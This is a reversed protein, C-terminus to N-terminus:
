RTRRKSKKPKSQTHGRQLKALYAKIQKESFHKLVEEPPLKALSELAVERRFDEM